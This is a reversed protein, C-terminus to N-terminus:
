GLSKIFCLDGPGVVIAGSEMFRSLGKSNAYRVLEWTISIFLWLAPVVSGPLVLVASRPAQPLHLIM